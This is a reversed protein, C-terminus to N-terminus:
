RFELGDSRRNWQKWSYTTGQIRSDFSQNLDYEQDNRIREDSSLQSSARDLFHLSYDNSGRQHIELTARDDLPNPHAIPRDNYICEVSEIEHRGVLQDFSTLDTAALATAGSSFLTLTLALIRKM